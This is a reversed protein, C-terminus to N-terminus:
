RHGESEPVTGGPGSSRHEDAPRVEPPVQARLWQAVERSSQLHYFGFPPHKAALARSIERRRTRFKRLSLQVPHDRSLWSSWTEANGNWLERGTWAREVSRKVVRPWFEGKPLDLWIVVNARDWLLDRVTPYGASDVVWEPRNLIDTVEATFEPRPTWDPGHFHKDLEVHPIGTAASIRRALTSKGVGSIGCLLIRRENDDKLMLLAKSNRTSTRIAASPRM